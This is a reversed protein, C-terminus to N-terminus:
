PVARWAPLVIKVIYEILEVAQRYVGPLSYTAVGTIAFFALWCFIDTLFSPGSNGLGAAQCQPTVSGQDGALHATM